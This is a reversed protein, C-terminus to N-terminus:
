KLSAAFVEKAKEGYLVKKQLFDETEVKFYKIGPKRIRFEEVIDTPVDLRTSQWGTEKVFITLAERTLFWNLFTKAANPHPPNAVLAINSSAHSLYGFVDILNEAIGTPAGANRYEDYIENLAAIAIHFKGKALWDVQLRQDRVLEVGLSAFDKWFSEGLIEMGVAFLQQGRGAVTPDNMVIKGKFKPQLLDKWYRIEEGKVFNSNYIISDKGGAAHATAHFIFGKRDVFPYTGDMWAKPDKVEPLIFAEAIPSFVGAPLLITLMTTAGGIFLDGYFIGARRESLIKEALDNGRGLIYEIDIGHQAKFAQAIASRAEPRWTTFLVVRGEEGGKKIVKEWQSVWSEATGQAEAPQLGKNAESAKQLTGTSSSCSAVIFLFLLVPLTCVTKRM